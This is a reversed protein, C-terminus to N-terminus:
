TLLAILADLAEGVGRGRPAVSEVYACRGPWRLAATMGALPTANPLDRKNLQFVVPISAPDRGADVIDTHLQEVRGVCQEFREPQSDLVLLAGDLSPLFLRTARM